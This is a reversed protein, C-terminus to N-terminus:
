SALRRRHNGFLGTLAVLSPYVSGRAAHQNGAMLFIRFIAPVIVDKAPTAEALKGDAAALEAGDPDDGGSFQVLLNGAIDKHATEEIVKNALARLFGLLGGSLTGSSIRVGAAIKDSTMSRYLDSIVPVHQLPNIVDM